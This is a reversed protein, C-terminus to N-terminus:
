NEEVMVDDIVDFMKEHQNEGAMVRTSRYKLAWLNNLDSPPFEEGHFIWINYSEEFGFDHINTYVMNVIHWFM